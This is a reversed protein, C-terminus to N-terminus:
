AIRWIRMGGAETRTVFKKGHRMGYQHASRQAALPKDALFSDGVEMTDFPYRQNGHMGPLPVNKEVTFM